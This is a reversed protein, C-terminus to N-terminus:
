RHEMRVEVRAAEAPDLWGMAGSLSDARWTQGRVVATVTDPLPQDAPQEFVWRVEVPVEPQLADVTVGEGRQTLPSVRAPDDVPEGFRLLTVGSLRIAESTVGADLYRASSNTLRGTLVLFRLGNQATSSGPRISTTYGGTISVRLPAAAVEAPASHGLPAPAPRPEMGGFAATLVVGALGLALWGHTATFAGRLATLARSLVGPSPSDTVAALRRRLPGGLAM